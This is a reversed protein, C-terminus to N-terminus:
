YHGMARFHFVLPLCLTLESSTGAAAPCEQEKSAAVVGLPDEDSSMCLHVIFTKGRCNGTAKWWGLPSKGGSSPQRMSGHTGVPGLSSDTSRCLQIGGCGSPIFQSSAHRSAQFSLRLQAPGVNATQWKALQDHFDINQRSIAGGASSKQRLRLNISCWCM